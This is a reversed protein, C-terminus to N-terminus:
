IQILKLPRSDELKFTSFSEDWLRKDDEFDLEKKVNIISGYPMKRIASEKIRTWKDYTIQRKNIFIDEKSFDKINRVGKIKIDGDIFYFKPKCFIGEKIEKELKMEGLKESSDFLKRKTIISDTDVYVLSKYDKEMNSHLKLRSLAITYSAFVPMIFVPIQFPIEITEFAYEGRINFKHLIKKKKNEMYYLEGESTTYLSKIPYVNIKNNIKQAFKGFLGGNMLTKIMIQMAENGEKKYSMRLDYLDKICDRFPVFNKTYYISDYFRKIEAGKNVAKRLEANTFWGEAMGYPFLLKNEKMFPIIPAYDYPIDILVKSIGEYELSNYNEKNHSSNVDPYNGEGDFGDHLVSPYMSNFDYYYANNVLGRKFVETRGGRVANYHKEIIHRKEQFIDEPQYKRRWLDIGTSSLTNKMKCGLSNFFDRLFLAFKYTIMSDNINYAELEKKEEYTQARKGLFSPPKIKEFNMLKGIKEVSLPAFNFTDLFTFGHFNDAELRIIIFRGNREIYHFRELNEKDFLINFDFDLNTAFILSDRTTRSLLFDQMQKKDYFIRRIDNSVVSGMYFEQKIYSIDNTYVEEQITEVDFAIIKKNNKVGRKLKKLINLM